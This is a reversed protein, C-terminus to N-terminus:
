KVEDPSYAKDAHRILAASEAEAEAGFQNIQSHIQKYDGARVASSLTKINDSQEFEPVTAPQKEGNVYIEIGNAAAAKLVDPSPYDAISTPRFHIAKVDTPLLDGHIQAELYSNGGLSAADALDALSKAQRIKTLQSDARSDLKRDYGRTTTSLLSALTPDDPDGAVGSKFSDAGTFTARARVEPKFEVTISGYAGDVQRHEAGELSPGGFYGYKPRDKGDASRRIGMIQEEVRARVSLYDDSDVDPPPPGPRGGLEHATKFRDGLVLGLVESDPIKLYVASNALLDKANTEAEAIEEPSYRNQIQRNKAALAPANIVRAPAKNKDANANSKPASASASAAPLAAKTAPKAKKAQDSDDRCNNKQPICRGKCPKGKKCNWQKSPAKATPAKLIEGIRVMLDGLNNEIGVMQKQHKQVIQALDAQRTIEAQGSALRAVEQALAQVGDRVANLGEQLQAQENEGAPDVILGADKLAQQERVRMAVIQDFDRNLAGLEITYTSLGSEIAKVAADLDKAPDIWDFSPTTYDYQHYRDEAIPYDPLNIVGKLWAAEIIERTQALHYQSKFLSQLAKISRIARLREARHSSYSANSYDNSLTSYCLGVIGASIGRLIHKTFEPLAANPRTPLFSDFTEGPNLRLLMGPEFEQVQQTEAGDQSVTTTEGWSEPESTQIVGGVLAAGKAAVLEAAETDELFHLRKLGVALPPIGRLQEPRECIFIHDLDRAPVFEIEELSPQRGAFRDGPHQKYLWYGRRRGDADLEIGLEVRINSGNHYRLELDDVLYDAELVKIAYPIPSGGYSKRYKRVLVEGSEAWTRVILRALQDFDQRGFVDFRDATTVKRLLTTLEHNVKADLKRGSRTLVKPQFKFGSEGLIEDVLTNVAGAAYPDNRVIDRCRDRLIRIAGYIEHNASSSSTIWDRFLRNFEAGDYSRKLFSNVRM